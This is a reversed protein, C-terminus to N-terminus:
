NQRAGPNFIGAFVSAGHAVAGGSVYTA